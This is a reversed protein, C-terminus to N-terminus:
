QGTTLQSLLTLICPLLLQTLKIDLPLPLTVAFQFLTPWFDVRRANSAINTRSFIEVVLDFGKKVGVWFSLFRSLKQRGIFRNHNVM